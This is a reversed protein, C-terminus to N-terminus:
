HHLWVPRVVSPGPHLLIENLSRPAAVLVREGREHDRMRALAVREGEPDQAVLLAGFVGRLLREESGPAVQGVEPFGLAKVGPELAQNDV